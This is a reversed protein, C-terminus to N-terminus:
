PLDTTEEDLLVPGEILRKRDLGNVLLLDYYGRPISNGLAVTQEYTVNVTITGDTTGLVIGGNAGDDLTLLVPNTLGKTERIQMSASFGTLDIPNGNEDQWTLVRSTSAGQDIKFAYFGAM